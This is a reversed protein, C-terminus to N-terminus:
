RTEKGSWPSRDWAPEDGNPLPKLDPRTQPDLITFTPNKPPAQKADWRGPEHSEYGYLWPPEHLLPCGSPIVLQVGKGEALGMWYECGARQRSREADMAYHIGYFGLHTVGEAMALAVMWAVQSTFYRHPYEALIREKPYRVSTPVDKYHKQMYIPTAMQRLWVQYNEAWRKPARWVAEPHLDFYRDVRQCLPHASAHAWIEWSPDHWPAFHVTAATGILAIKRARGPGPPDYYPPPPSQRYDQGVAIVPRSKTGTGM